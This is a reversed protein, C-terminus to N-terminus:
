LKYLFVKLVEEFYKALLQELKNQAQYYSSNKYSQFSLQKESKHESEETFLEPNLQYELSGIFILLWTILINHRPHLKEYYITMRYKTEVVNVIGLNESEESPTKLIEIFKKDCDSLERHEKNLREGYKELFDKRVLAENLARLCTRKKINARNIALYYNAPYLEIKKFMKRSDYQM